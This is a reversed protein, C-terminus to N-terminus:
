VTSIYIQEIEGIVKLIIMNGSGLSQIKVKSKFRAMVMIVPEDDNEVDDYAATLNYKPMGEFDPRKDKDPWSKISPPVLDRMFEKFVVLEGKDFEFIEVRKFPNKM